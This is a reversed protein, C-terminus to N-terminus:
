WRREHSKRNLVTWECTGIGKTKKTIHKDRTALGANCHKCWSQFKAHTANHREVEDRSPLEPAKVVAGGEPEDGGALRREMEEVRKELEEIEEVDETKAEAEDNSAANLQKTKPRVPKSNPSKEMHPSDGRTVAESAEDEGM